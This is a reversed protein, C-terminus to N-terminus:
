PRRPGLLQGAAAPSQLNVGGYAMRTMQGSASRPGPWRQRPLSRSVNGVQDRTFSSKKWVTRALRFPRTM